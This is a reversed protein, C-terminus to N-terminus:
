IHRWTRRNQISGITSPSVVHKRALEAQSLKSARIELVEAESFRVNPHLEGTQNHRGEDHSQQVNEQNTGLFLHKPNVCSPNNCSHLVLQVGPDKGHHLFWSLRAAVYMRTHVKMSGYGDKSKTGTWLWCEGDKNVKLWFNIQHQITLPELPLLRETLKM